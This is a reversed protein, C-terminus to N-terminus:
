TLEDLRHSKEDKVSMQRELRKLRMGRINDYVQIINPNVALMRAQMELVTYLSIYKKNKQHQTLNIGM